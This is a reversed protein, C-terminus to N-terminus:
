KKVMDRVCNILKLLGMVIILAVGVLMGANLIWLPYQIVTTSEGTKMQTGIITLLQTFLACNIVIAIVYQIIKILNYPIKKGKDKFGDEVLTLSILEDKLFALAAGVFICWVFMLKLAEDTWPVPTQLVNRALVGYSAIMIM